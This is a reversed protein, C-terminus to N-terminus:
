WQTHPLHQDIKKDFVVKVKDDIEAPPDTHAFEIPLARAAYAASGQACCHLELLLLGYLVTRRM